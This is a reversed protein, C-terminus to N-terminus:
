NGDKKPRELNRQLEDLIEKPVDRDLMAKVKDSLHCIDDGPSYLLAKVFVADPIRSGMGKVIDTYIVNADTAKVVEDALSVLLEGNLYVDAAGIRNRGVEFVYKKRKNTKVINAGRLLAIDDNKEAIATEAIHLLQHYFQDSESFNDWIYDRLAHLKHLTKIEAEVKDRYCKQLEGRIRMLIKGLLNKGVGDCVGWETDGWTNGEVLVKDGTALLMAELEPKQTFKALCVTYMYGEKHKEWDKRLEVTRGLKKAEKANLGEFMGAKLPNKMAQFAAEANRYKFGWCYIETEYFNSLFAYKGRFASITKNNTEM